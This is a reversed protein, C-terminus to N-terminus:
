GDNEKTWYSSFREMGKSVAYAECNDYSADYLMVSLQMKMTFEKAAMVQPKKDPLWELLQKLDKSDRSILRYFAQDLLKWEHQEDPFHPRLEYGIKSAITEYAQNYKNSITYMFDCLAEPSLDGQDSNPFVEVMLPKLSSWRPGTYVDSKYFEPEPNIEQGFFKINGNELTQATGPVNSQPEEAMAGVPLIMAFGLVLLSRKLLNKSMKM